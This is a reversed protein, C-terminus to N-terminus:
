AVEFREIRWLQEPWYEAMIPTGDGAQGDCILMFKEGSRKAERVVMEQGGSKLQVRVGTGFGPIEVTETKRKMAVVDNMM